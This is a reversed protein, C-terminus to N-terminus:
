GGSPQRLISGTRVKLCRMNQYRYDYWYIQFRLSSEYVEVFWIIVSLSTNLSFRLLVTHCPNPCLMQTKPNEWCCDWCCMFHVWFILDQNRWIWELVTYKSLNRRYYSSLLIGACGILIEKKSLCDRGTRRVLLNFFITM